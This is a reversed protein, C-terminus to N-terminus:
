VPSQTLRLGATGGVDHYYSRPSSDLSFAFCTSNDTYGWGAFVTEGTWVAENGSLVAERNYGSLMVAIGDNRTFRCGRVASGITNEFFIAGMRQLAWDGGSPMSHAEFYTLAADKVGIGLLKFGVVPTRHTGRTPAGGIVKILDQLVPVEFTQHQPGASTNAVFYLKMEKRDYFFEMPFDLEERVNEVFWEAGSNSGRAGQFGGKTWNLTQSEDTAGFSDVEFM